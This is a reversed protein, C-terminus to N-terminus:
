FWTCSSLSAYCVLAKDRGDSLKVVERWVEESRVRTKVPHDDAHEEEPEVDLTASIRRPSSTPLDYGSGFATSTRPTRPPHPSLPNMQIGHTTGFSSEYPVDMDEDNSHISSMSYSGNPFTVSSMKHFHSPCFPPICALTPPRRSTTGLFRRNSSRPLGM